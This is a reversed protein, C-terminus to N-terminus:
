RYYARSASRSATGNLVAGFQQGQQGAVAILRDLRAMIGAADAHTMGGGSGGAQPVLLENKGTGNYAMSYGPPMISGGASDYWNFRAEHSAARIPDGYVSQIYGIMWSIQARVNGAVAAAGMKSPPLAQPIGFAGSSPNRAFQNWGSERMAVYNWANWEAGSGWAPMM